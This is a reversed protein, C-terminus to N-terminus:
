VNAGSEIQVYSSNERRIDQVTVIPSPMSQIAQLLETNSSDASPITRTIIGGGEYFGAKSQGSGFSNNFDMFSAYAGRNLIGIGEGGEAEGIYKNGAFVPVGGQAHSNGDISAIGGKEFKTDIGAIKAVSAAGKAAVIAGTAIGAIGGQAIAKTIGQQVNIGAQALATFKGVASERGLVNTVENLVSEAGEVKAANAADELEIRSNAYKQNILDIDAGTKEAAEVEQIRKAELRALDIELQSQFNEEDLIRKNELDLVEKEKKAEDRKTQAEGKAIRNEEDIANIADDYETQNIVGETLRTKEFLRREKALANLRDQEIRLSEDSFFQENDIKSQTNLVFADLEKQAEEVIVESRQKALENQLELSRANFETESINRNKLEAKLIETERRYVEESIKLNEKLTKARSGQQQIFLNLEEEQRQILGDAIEKAQSAADRRLGNLNALQESEQSTIREQIDAIETLAQAQSDLAASTQGEAEIRLNAVILAQEAIRLEAALQTQLLKGLQENASARESISLAEDDRIQRLKEADKQFELQTLRAKRQSKELNQEAKELDQAAKVGEKIENTWSTVGAAAEDFGLLALGSSIIGMAKEAAAAALNFGMVIGDILFEGLPELAKLVTNFVGTVASFALKLKNTSEESRNMANKILAFAAVLAALIAGIPTAIFALSAKVLGLFGTAAGKLSSQLLNGAGGAEQSRVIFGSLGGNFINLENFAEKISDKYNGINIKQKLYSDANDKIFENNSDLADNLAKLEKRGQETTVNTENRLKNLLKNQNRAEQISSVEELLAGSLLQERAIADATAKTNQSLTKINANYAQSLVKLDAANQVFAKSSTGGIKTLEKQDKKLQDIQKKIEATNKIFAEANIDLEAIVVREAM